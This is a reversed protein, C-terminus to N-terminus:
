IWGGDSLLKKGTDTLRLKRLHAPKDEPVHEILGRKVLRNRMSHRPAARDFSGSGNDGFPAFWRLAKITAMTVPM